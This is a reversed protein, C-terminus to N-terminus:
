ILLIVATLCLFILDNLTMLMDSIAMKCVYDESETVIVVHRKQSACSIYIIEDYSIIIKRGNILKFSVSQNVADKTMKIYDILIQKIVKTKCPKQIYQFAHVQYANRWYQHYNTVYVIKINQDYKRILKAVEIGNISPMEIDLFVLHHKIDDNLFEKGSKYSFLQLNENLNNGAKLLKETLDDIASQEDDVIAIRIM